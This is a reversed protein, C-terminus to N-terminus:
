NFSTAKPKDKRNESKNDTIRQSDVFVLCYVKARIKVLMFCISVSKLIRESVSKSTFICYFLIMILCRVV